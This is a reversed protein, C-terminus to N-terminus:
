VHKSEEDRTSFLLMDMGVYDDLLKIIALVVTVKSLSKLLFLICPFTVRKQNRM